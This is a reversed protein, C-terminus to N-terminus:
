SEKRINAQTRFFDKARLATWKFASTSKKPPRLALKEVIYSELEDRESPPCSIRALAKHVLQSLNEVKNMLHVEARELSPQGRSCCPKKVRYRAIKLTARRLCNLSSLITM